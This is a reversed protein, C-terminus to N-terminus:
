AGRNHIRQSFETTLQAIVEPIIRLLMGVSVSDVGVSSQVFYQRLVVVVVGGLVLPFLGGVM